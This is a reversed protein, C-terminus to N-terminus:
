KPQLTAEIRQGGDLPELVLKARYGFRAAVEAVTSTYLNADDAELQSVRAGSVGLLDGARRTTLGAQARLARFAQGAGEVILAALLDDPTMEQLHEGQARIAKIGELANLASLYEADPVETLDLREKWDQPTKPM